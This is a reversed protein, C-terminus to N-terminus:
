AQILGPANALEAALNLARILSVTSAVGKGAIDFATGHDVSTRVFPLGLTVNVARGFALLKVPVLGQDHYAALVERQGEATAGGHSGMAPVLYPAAGQARVWRVVREVVTLLDAIGRSGVAIAVEGGAPLSVGSDHLAHDTTAAVDDLRPEDLPVRVRHFLVEDSM